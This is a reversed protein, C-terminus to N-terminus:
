SRLHSSGREREVILCGVGHTNKYLHSLAAAVHAAINTKVSHGIGNHDIGAGSKYKVAVHAITCAIRNQLYTNYYARHIGAGRKGISM